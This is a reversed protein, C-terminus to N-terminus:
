SLSCARARSELDAGRGNLWSEVMWELMERGYDKNREEYMAAANSAKPQLPGQRVARRQSDTSSHSHEVVRLLFEEHVAKLPLLLSRDTRLNYFPTRRNSGQGKDLGIRWM